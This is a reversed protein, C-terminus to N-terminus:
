SNRWYRRAPVSKSYIKRDGFRSLLNIYSIESNTVHFQNNELTVLEVEGDGSLDVLESEWYHAANMDLIRGTM